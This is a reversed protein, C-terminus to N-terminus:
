SPSLGVAVDRDKYGISLEAGSDSASGGMTIGVTHSQGFVLSPSTSCGSLTAVATAISIGVIRKKM